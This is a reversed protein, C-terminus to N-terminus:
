YVPVVAPYTYPDPGIYIGNRYCSIGDCYVGFGGYAALTGLGLGLGLGPGFGRRFFRRRRIGPRGFRGFRGTRGRRGRRGGGRRGGFGGRRGGRPQSIEVINENEPNIIGEEEDEGGEQEDEEEEEAEEDENEENENDNDYKKENENKKDDDDLNMKKMSARVLDAELNKNFTEAVPHGDQISKIFKGHQKKIGEYVRDNEALDVGIRSYIRRRRGYYPYRYHPYAGYPYGYGYPAYGYGYPYSGAALAGATLATAGLALAPWVSRRIPRGIPEEKGVSYQAGIVSKIEDVEGEERSMRKEVEKFLVEASDADFFVTGDLSFAQNPGNVEHYVFDGLLQDNDVLRWRLESQEILLYPDPVITLSSYSNFNKSIVVWPSDPDTDKFEIMNRLGLENAVVTEFRQDETQNVQQLFVSKKQLMVKVVRMDDFYAKLQTAYGLYRPPLGISLEGNKKKMGRQSRVRSKVGCSNLADVIRAPLSTASPKMMEPCVNTVYTVAVSRDPLMFVEASHGCHQRAGVIVVRTGEVSHDDIYTNGYGFYVHTSRSLAAQPMTLLLMEKQVPSAVFANGFNSVDKQTAYLDSIAHFVGQNGLTPEAVSPAVRKATEEKQFPDTTADKMGFHARALQTVVDAVNDASYWRRLIMGLIIGGVQSVKSKTAPPYLLRFFGEQRAKELDEMFREETSPAVTDDMIDDSVVGPLVPLAAPLGATHGLLQNLTPLGNSGYIARLTDLFEPVDELAKEVVSPDYLKDHHPDYTPWKEFMKKLIGFAVIPLALNGVNFLTKKHMEDLFTGYIKEEHGNRVSYALTSNKQADATLPALAARVQRDLDNNTNAQLVDAHCMDCGIRSNVYKRQQEYCCKVGNYKVYLVITKIYFAPPGGCEGPIKGLEMLMRTSPLNAACLKHSKNADSVQVTMSSPIADADCKAFHIDYSGNYQQALRTRGDPLTAEIGLEWGGCYPIATRGDLDCRLLCSTTTIPVVSVARKIMLDYSKHTDHIKLCLLPDPSTCGEVTSPCKSEHSACVVYASFLDAHKKCCEPNRKYIMGFAKAIAAPM